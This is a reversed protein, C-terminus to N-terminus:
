ALLFVLHLDDVPPGLEDVIAIEGLHLFLFIWLLEKRSQEKSISLDPKQPSRLIWFRHREQAFSAARLAPPITKFLSCKKLQRINQVKVRCGRLWPKATVAGRVCHLRSVTCHRVKEVSESCNMEPSGKRYACSFVAGGVRHQLKVIWKEANLRDTKRESM